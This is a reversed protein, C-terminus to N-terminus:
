GLEDEAPVEFERAWQDLHEPDVLFGESAPDANRQLIRQKLEKLPASLYHLKVQAGAEGAEMRYRDREARSWFGNELVVSGGSKLVLKASEWQKKEVIKRAHEDYVHAGMEKLREDPSFRRASHQAELDRALSSKGSGPLGCIM